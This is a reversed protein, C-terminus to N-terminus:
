TRHCDELNVELYVKLNFDFGRICLRSTRAQLATSSRFLAMGICM